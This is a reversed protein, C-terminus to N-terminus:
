LLARRAMGAVISNRAPGPNIAAEHIRMLAKELEDERAPRGRAFVVLCVSQLLMGLMLGAILDQMPDFGM